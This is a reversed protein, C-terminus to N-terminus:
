YNIKNTTRTINKIINENIRDQMRDMDISENVGLKVNLGNSVNNPYDINPSGYSLSEGSLGKLDPVFRKCNPARFKSINEAVRNFKEDEENEKDILKGIKALQKKKIRGSKTRKYIGYYKKAKTNTKIIKKFKDKYTALECANNWAKIMNAGIEGLANGLQRFAKQVEPYLITTNVVTTDKGTALDVGIIKDDNM